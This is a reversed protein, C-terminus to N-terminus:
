RQLNPHARVAQTPIGDCFAVRNTRLAPIRPGPTLIGVLNLPDAASIEITEGDHPLRRTRRLADVAGPLAYQEGAFGTVFRGGRVVGRAEMRRLAFLLDRWPVRISERALIDRFVVGWRALLQEAVAEALEDADFSEQSAALLLSWRGDIADRARGRTGRRLGRRSRSRLRRRAERERGGLLARVAAFSDATVFGRAVLDWLGQEVEVPLRGARVVLDRQFLAGKERLVELLERACGAPPEGPLAEGRAAHLLWDLDSRLVLGLPTARSPSSAPSRPPSLAGREPPSLRGWGVEGSLCLADLWGPRYNQVRSALLTSEWSGAPLEFGQMQEVVALVGRKGERRTDPTAHQWRLLFRLFDQASVPEIERRLRDKTYLHIRTLLRRSCFQEDPVDPDFHGRLAFGEGELEALGRLVASPALQTRQALSDPLMPGLFDLHGRLTERVAAEFDPVPVLGEPLALPVAASAPHIRADPHLWRVHALNERAAWLTGKGPDLELARGDRCLLDFADRQSPDAPWVM